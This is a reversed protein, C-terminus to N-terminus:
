YCWNIHCVAHSPRSPAFNFGISVKSRKPPACKITLHAFIYNAMETRLSVFKRILNHIHSLQSLKTDERQRRKAKISNGDARISRCRNRQINAALTETCAIFSNWNAWLYISQPNAQVNLQYAKKKKKFFFLLFLFTFHSSCHNAM